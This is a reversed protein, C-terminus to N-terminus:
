IMWLCMEWRPRDQYSIRGWIESICILSRETTKCVSFVRLFSGFQTHVKLSFLAKLAINPYKVINYDKEKWMSYSLLWNQIEVTTNVLAGGPIGATMGGPVHYFILSDNFLVTWFGTMRSQSQFVSFSLEKQFFGHFFTMQKRCHVGHMNFVLLPLHLSLSNPMLHLFISPCCFACDPSLLTIIVCQPIHQLFLDAYLNLISYQSYATLVLINLVALLYFPM